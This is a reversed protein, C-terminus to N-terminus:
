RAVSVTGRISGEGLLRSRGSAGLNPMDASPILATGYAFVEM